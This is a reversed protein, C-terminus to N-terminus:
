ASGLEARVEALEQEAHERVLRAHEAQRHAIQGEAEARALRAAFEGILQISEETESHRGQKAMWLQRERLIAERALKAATSRQHAEIAEALALSAALEYRALYVVDRRRELEAAEDALVDRETVLEARRAIFAPREKAKADVLDAVLDRLEDGVRALDACKATAREALQDYESALTELTAEM